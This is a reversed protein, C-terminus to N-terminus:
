HCFLLFCCMLESSLYRKLCLMLLLNTGEFNTTGDIRDAKGRGIVNYRLGTAVM